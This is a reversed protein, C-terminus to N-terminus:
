KPTIVFSGTSTTNVKICHTRSLQDLQQEISGLSQNCMEPPVRESTPHGILGGRFLFADDIIIVDNEYPGSMIADLEKHAPIFDEVFSEYSTEWAILGTDVGPFHADLFWLVTDCEDYGSKRAWQLMKVAEHSKSRLIKAKGAFKQKAIDVTTQMIDCSTVRTFGQDLAYAVGDGNGTGTEFFNTLGYKEKLEKLNHEKLEAM